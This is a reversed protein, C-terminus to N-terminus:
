AATGGRIMDALKEGIMICAANTNGSVLTPMISADAVRLGGVGHVKLQADVVSAPDAGMKCTGAPHFITTGTRAAHAVLEEDSEAADGPWYEGAVYAALAPARAIRRSLRLGAMVVRRDTDTALYNAVIRPAEGPDPSNIAIRGRSEPRLQCISATFGSFDHLGRAPDETSSPMVHFQVDPTAAGPMTRAFVGVQGAGITMPGSRKLLYEAAIVARRWISKVDDNLTIPRACRFITKVQFHDQLNEGVGPLDNVVAIGHRALLAGPGIGSLQLLQPSQVAGACLIVERRAGVRVRRGGIRGIVGVARRGEFAVREVLMDTAIRLNARRRAPRLYAAAASCRWRGRITLQYYGVGEQQTGNFDPNYPIGSEVAARIYAECLEHRLRLDAVGLPGGVGHLESAGREQDECRKFVPLVSQWDWGANGLQRWTDFDEPQGRMYILGNISSSGGIVRGRPWIIQRDGLRPEPETKFDWSFASGFATRYYGVPIHLWLNRDAGGAEILAVSRQPDESLRGALACGASGAGVIVYDHQEIEETM